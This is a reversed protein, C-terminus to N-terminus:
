KIPFAEETGSADEGSVTREGHLEGEESIEYHATGHSASDFGQWEVDLASGTITGTGTQISGTIIWQMDVVDPQDTATIELTGGYETGGPDVGNVYYTGVLSGDFGQQPFACASAAIAALLALTLPGRLLRSRRWLTQNASAM